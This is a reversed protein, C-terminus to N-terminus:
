LIDNFTLISDRNSYTFNCCNQYLYQKSNKLPDYIMTYLLRAITTCKLIDGMQIILKKLEGFAM